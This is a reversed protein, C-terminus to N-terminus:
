EQVDPSAVVSDHQVAPAPHSTIPVPALVEVTVVVRAPEGSNALVRDASVVDNVNIPATGVPRLAELHVSLRDRVATYVTEAARGTFTVAPLGVEDAKNEYVVEAVSRAFEDIAANDLVANSAPDLLVEMPGVAVAGPTRTVGRTAESTLVVPRSVSKDTWLSKGTVTFMSRPLPGLAIMQWEGRVLKRDIISRPAVDPTSALYSLVTAMVLDPREHLRAATDVKVLDLEAADSRVSHIIWQLLELTGRRDELLVVSSGVGAEAAGYSWGITLATVLETVVMLDDEITAGGFVKLHGGSLMTISLDSDKAESIVITSSAVLRRRLGAARLAGSVDYAVGGARSLAGASCALFMVLAGDPQTQIVGGSLVLKGVETGVSLLPGISRVYLSSQRKLSHIVFVAADPSGLGPVVVGLRREDDLAEGEALFVSSVRQPSSVWREAVTTRGAEELRKYFAGITRGGQRLPASLVQRAEFKRTRGMQDVGSIWLIEAGNPLSGQPLGRLGGPVTQAELAALQEGFPLRPDVGLLESVRGAVNGMDAARWTTRAYAKVDLRARMWNMTWSAPDTTRVTIEFDASAALTPVVHVLLHDGSVPLRHRGNFLSDVSRQMDRWFAGGSGTYNEPFDGEFKVHLNLAFERVWVDAGIQMRRIVHHLPGFKSQQRVENVPAAARLMDAEAVLHPYTLVATVKTTEALKATHPVVRGSSVSGGLVDDASLPTTGQSTLLRLYRTVPSHLKTRVLEARGHAEAFAKTPDTAAEDLRGTGEVRLQPLPIGDESNEVAIEALLRAVRNVEDSNRILGRSTDIRFDLGAPSHFDAERLPASEDLRVLTVPRRVEGATHDWAAKGTVTFRARAIESLPVRSWTGTGPSFTRDAVSTVTPFGAPESAVYALVAALVLDPREHESAQRHLAALNLDGDRDRVSDALEDIIRDFLGMTGARDALQIPAGDWPPEVAAYAGREPLAAVFRAVVERDDLGDLDWHTEATLAAPEAQVPGDPDLGLEQQLAPLGGEPVVGVARRWLEALAADPDDVDIGARVALDVLEQQDARSPFPTPKALRDLANLTQREPAGLEEVGFLRTARDREANRMGGRAGIERGLVVTFDHGHEAAFSSLYKVLGVAEAKTTNQQQRGYLDGWNVVIRSVDAWSLGGHIQAEFNRTLLAFGVKGVQERVEPDHRFGTIEALAYRLNEEHGDALLGFLHESDTVSEVGAKGYGSSDSPTFTARARVSEKLYVVTSGNTFAGGHQLRSALAAYDPLESPATPAFEASRDRRNAPDGAIRHLVSGYGLQEEVWGRGARSPVGTTYGSEWFNPLKQQATMLEAWTPTHQGPVRPAGAPARGFDVNRVLPMTQLHRHAADLILDMQLEDNVPYSTNSRQNLQRIRAVVAARDAEHRGAGRETARSLAKQQVATLESRGPTIGLTGYEDGLPPDLLPAVVSDSEPTAPLGDAVVAGAPDVMVAQITVRGPLDETSVVRDGQDRQPEIWVVGGDETHHGVV